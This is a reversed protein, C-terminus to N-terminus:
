TAIVVLIVIVLATLTIEAPADRIRDLLRASRHAAAHAFVLYGVAVATASSILVAGAAVDKALKANPDFSTTSVDIAGEIASNVMEAVLVFAIALLLVILEIRDVGLAAAAAIVAIAIAFHIRLNRQTRLVHIIGEFAWNFSDLISPVRGPARPPTVRRDDERRDDEHRQPSIISVPPASGTSGERRRPRLRG